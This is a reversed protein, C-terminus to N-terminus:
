MWYMGLSRNKEGVRSPSIKLIYNYGRSLALERYERLTKSM